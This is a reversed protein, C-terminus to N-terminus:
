LGKDLIWLALHLCFHLAFESLLEYCKCLKKRPWTLLILDNGWLIYKLLVLILSFLLFSISSAIININIWLGNTRQKHILDIPGQSKEATVAASAASSARSVNASATASSAFYSSYHSSGESQFWFLTGPRCRTSRVTMSLSLLKASFSIWCVM